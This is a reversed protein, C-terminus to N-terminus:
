RKPRHHHHNPSNLRQHAYGLESPQVFNTWTSPLDVKIMMTTSTRWIIRRQQMWAPFRTTPSVWVFGVLETPVACFTKSVFSFTKHSQTIIFLSFKFRAPERGFPLLNHGRPVNVTIALNSTIYNCLRRGSLYLSLSAAPWCAPRVAARRWAALSAASGSRRVIASGSPIRGASYKASIRGRSSDRGESAEKMWRQQASSFSFFIREDNFVAIDISWRFERDLLLPFRIGSCLLSFFDVLFDKQNIRGLWDATVTVSWSGAANNEVWKCHRWPGIPMMVYMVISVCLFLLFPFFFSCVVHALSSSSCARIRNEPTINRWWALTSSFFYYVKPPKESHKNADRFSFWILITGSASAASAEKEM